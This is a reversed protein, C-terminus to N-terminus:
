GCTQRWSSAAPEVALHALATAVRTVDSRLYGAIKTLPVVRPQPRM